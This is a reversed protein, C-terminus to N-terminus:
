VKEIIRGKHVVNNNIVQTKFPISKWRAQLFGSFVRFPPLLGDLLETNADFLLRYVM